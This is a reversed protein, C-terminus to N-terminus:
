WMTKTDLWKCLGFCDGAEKESLRSSLLRKSPNEVVFQSRLRSMRDLEVRHLSTDPIQTFVSFYASSGM